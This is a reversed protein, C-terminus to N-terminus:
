VIYPSAITTQKPSPCELLDLVQSVAESLQSEWDKMYSTTYRSYCASCLLNAHAPILEDEKMASIIDTKVHKKHSLVYMTFCEKGWAEHKVCKCQRDFNFTLHEGPKRKSM